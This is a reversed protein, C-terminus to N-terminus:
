KCIEVFKLRLDYLLNDLLDQEEQALNNATKEKLVGLLDITQRALEPNPQIQGSAPDPLLGLHILASTNLSIVFSAFSLEPLSEPCTKEGAPGPKPEPAPQEKAKTEEGASTRRDTVTFGKNDQEPM